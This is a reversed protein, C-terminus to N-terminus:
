QAPVRKEKSLVVIAVILGAVTGLIDVASVPRGRLAEDIIPRAQLGSVFFLAGCLVLKVPRVLIM